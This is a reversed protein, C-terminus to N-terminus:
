EVMLLGGSLEGESTLLQLTYIGTSLNEIPLQTNQSRKNIRHEGVLRGTQDIIRISQVSYSAPWEITVFNGSIPNPYIRVPDHTNSYEEMGARLQFRVYVVDLQGAHDPQYADPTTMGETTRLDGICHAVGDRVSVDFLRDEFGEGGFYTSFALSGDPNFCAFVGDVPVSENPFPAGETAMGSSSTIGCVYIRGFEDVDMSELEDTGDGGFYSARTVNFDLEFKARFGDGNSGTENDPFPQFFNDGVALGSSSFTLGTLYIASETCVLKSSRDSGSGGFYRRHVPWGSTDFEGLFADSTGSLECDSMCNFAVADPSFTRGAVIIRDDIVQL